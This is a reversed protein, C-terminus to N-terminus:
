LQYDLINESPKVIAAIVPAAEVTTNISKTTDVKNKFLDKINIRQMVPEIESKAGGLPGVSSESPVSCNNSSGKTKPPKGMSVPAQTKVPTSGPSSSGKTNTTKGTSAHAQTKVPTSGPHAQTKVPTSGPSKLMKMLQLRSSASINPANRSGGGIKPSSKNVGADKTTTPTLSSSSSATVANGRKIGGGSSCGSNNSHFAFPSMSSTSHRENSPSMNGNVSSEPSNVHSFSQMRIDKSVPSPSSMYEQNVGTKKQELMESQFGLKSM